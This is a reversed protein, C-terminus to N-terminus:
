REKLELLTSRIAELTLDIDESSHATSLHVRGNSSLRIGKNFMLKCFVKYKNEDCYNFHERWDKINKKNTFSISFVSGLGQVHINSDLEHSLKEIGGILKKGKNDLDEYFNNDNIMVDLSANAAAISAVNSNFSGGHYVIGDGVLKMIENRGSLMAIPFGGAFSKAFTALDPEIGFFEKASGKLVRFGTIVEDFALLSGNNHCLRKVSELYSKNPIICNTNALIPEMIVGAINDSYKEFIKNLHEIDNWRAIIISKSSLIDMGTSEPVPIPSIEDGAYELDPHVSYNISDMWGHYHGEFKIFLQRNTYGRILRILLQNIETGSSAFRVTWNDVNLIKLAKQAVEIENEFQAAYVMGKKIENSIANNLFDPAHGFINPGMGQIYDIYENNDVDWIKSGKAKKIFLPVKSHELTRIQSSIGGSIYLKAKEYLKKSNSLENM